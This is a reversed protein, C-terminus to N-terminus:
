VQLKGFAATVREILSQQHFQPDAAVLPALMAARQNDSIIEGGRRIVSSQYLDTGQRQAYIFVVVVIILLPVGIAPHTLLLWLLLQFLGGDGGGGGGGSFGGGGHGGGGGGSFGHGGGARAFTFAAPALTTLAAFLLALWRRSPLKM